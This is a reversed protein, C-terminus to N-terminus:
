RTTVQVGDRDFEIRVWRGIGYVFEIADRRVLVRRPEGEPLMFRVLTPQKTIPNVIVVEYAGAKAQFTRSFQELTPAQVPQIPLPPTFSKEVSLFPDKPGPIVVPPPLSEVVVPPPYVPGSPPVYVKVFPARVSVGDGINIRVFPVRIVVQAESASVGVLAMMVACGASFYFQRM